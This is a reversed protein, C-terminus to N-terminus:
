KTNNIVCNGSFIKRSFILYVKFQWHCKLLILIYSTWFPLIGQFQWHYTTSLLFKSKKLKDSIICPISLTLIIKKRHFNHQQHCSISNDVVGFIHRVADDVVSVADDIVCFSNSAIKQQCNWPISRNQVLWLNRNDVIQQPRVPYARDGEKNEKRGGGREWRKTKKKKKQTGRERKELIFLIYHHM